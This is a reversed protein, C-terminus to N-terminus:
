QLASELFELKGEACSLKAHIGIPILSTEATQGLPIGFCSPTSLYKLRDAFVDMVSLMNFSDKPGCQEFKGLAVGRCRQLHGALYLTTFWRDLIGTQEKFDDLFLISGAFRPEYPTGLLSVLSTLNGGITHGEVDGSVSCYFDSGLDKSASISPLPEDSTLSHRVRDFTGKTKIADLNPGHFTVLGSQEFIANLLVTNDDDGMIIKPKVAISSYNLYPLLHMAGFGGSICFIGAISDDELFSQLDALRESDTGAMFGHVNLVHKGAVPAFGMERIVREAEAVVAPTAPRSCPAVIGVRDGNKLPRPKVLTKKEKVPLM